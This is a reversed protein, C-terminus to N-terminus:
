KRLQIKLWKIDIGLIYSILLETWAGKSKWWNNMMWIEDCWCLERLDNRLYDSWKTQNRYPPINIPNVINEYGKKRLYKEAENFNYRWNKEKLASIAGSIYARKKIM